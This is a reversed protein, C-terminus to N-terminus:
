LPTSERLADGFRKNEIEIPGEDIGLGRSEFRDHADPIGM